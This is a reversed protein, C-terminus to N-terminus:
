AESVRTAAARRSSGSRFAYIVVGVLAVIVAQVGPQLLVPKDLSSVCISIAFWTSFGM